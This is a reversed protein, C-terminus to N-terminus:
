YLDSLIDYVLICLSADRHMVYSYSNSKRFPLHGSATQHTQHKPLLSSPLPFPLRPLFLLSCGQRLSLLSQFPSLICCEGHDGLLSMLANSRLAKLKPQRFIHVTHPQTLVLRTISQLQTKLVSCWLFGPVKAMCVFSCLSQWSTRILTLIVLNINLVKHQINHKNTSYLYLIRSSM